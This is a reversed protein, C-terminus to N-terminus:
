KIKEKSLCMMGDAEKIRIWALWERDDSYPYDERFHRGRSEQRYLSARILMEANLVMNRTEHALRLEHADDALLMPGLHDKLFMITTLAAQLRDAQKVISYYYPFIINHLQQIVWRPRFGSERILPDYLRQKLLAIQAESKKKRAVDKAYTAAARGARAGTVTANAQGNGVFPYKAGIARSNFSDGAAYLGPLSTACNLDTQAIGSGGGHCSGVDMEPRFTGSWLGDTMGGLGLRELRREDGNIKIELDSWGIHSEPVADINLLIPGRGQHVAAAANNRNLPYGLSDVFWDYAGIQPLYGAWIMDKECVNNIDKGRIDIRGKEDPEEPFSIAGSLAFEKGSIEAGARYAMAEADGTLNATAMHKISKFGAPGTCTVVAGADFIYFSGDHTSFGVAGSIAGDEKILDTVMVHDIIRIGSGLVHKRLVPLFQMGKQMVCGEVPVGPLGCPINDGNELKPFFVGWSELDHYREIAEDLIINTWRPDNIGEAQKNYFDEWTARNHGRDASFATFINSWLTAGSRGVSNKEVLVVEVGTEKAKIAAFIGSMGGGIVLVDTKIEVVKTSM